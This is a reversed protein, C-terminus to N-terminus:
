GNACDRGYEAAPGSLPGNFGIVIEKAAQRGGQGACGAVLLLLAALVLLAPGFTKLKRM